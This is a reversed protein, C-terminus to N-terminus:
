FAIKLGLRFLILKVILPIGLNIWFNSVHQPPIWEEINKTGDQWSRGVPIIKPLFILLIAMM